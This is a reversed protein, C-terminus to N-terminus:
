PEVVAAADLTRAHLKRLADNAQGLPFREIEPRIPIEAALRLFAEGDARTNATVSRITRENSLHRAHDLAPIESLHLGAVALTGGPARVELARRVLRGDPAFCIASAALGPPEADAPGAWRAGLRRALAQHTPSRTFVVVECGQHIAVQAVLHASAGFGFLALRVGPRVEALRYARFGVIGACLLPALSADPVTGPLPYAFAEPVVAHEALGGAAHFGTFRATACLNERGEACRECRGCAGRLWGVGVRDGERFRRAGPGLRDVRGVIQHGPVLPLAPPVVDGVALHLDTHCVGCATVRLRVEGPGPEPAPLERPVLRDIAEVPGARELVMARM